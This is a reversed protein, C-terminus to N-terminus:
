EAEKTIASFIFDVDRNLTEFERCDYGRNGDYIVVYLHGSYESTVGVEGMLVNIPKTGTESIERDLTVLRNVSAEDLTADEFGNERLYEEVMETVVAM